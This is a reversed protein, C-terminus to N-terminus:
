LTLTTKLYRMVGWRERKVMADENGKGEGEVRSGCTVGSGRKRGREREIGKIVLGVHVMDSKKKTVNRASFM